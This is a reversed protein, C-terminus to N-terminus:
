RNVSELIHDRMIHVAKMFSNTSEEITRALELHVSLEKFDSSEKLITKQTRRLADDEERELSLVRDVPELFDQMEERTCGKQVYQAAHLARLHEQSAKVALEAMGVLEAHIGKSKLNAPALTTFFCAEELFDTADDAATILAVFFGAAETRKSLGRVKSVLEDAQSEWRKARKATRGIFSSNGGRQIGLLSDRVATAVEITLSAHETCIEMLGQHASRFYRLLEAKIEDQILLNSRHALQGATATKLVWQIYELTRERGLVQYLPEGYRLPARAALELAEYILKEGGLKLFGMHGVDNDAAWKLAAICDKKRLFNRFCKRARNWDILFVLRSGFYDLFATLEAGDRATFKGVSLHYMGSEFQAGGRKSLTDEWKVPHKEFLGQFFLLRAMHVDTYIISVTLDEINIVLVHADTTGIDNQLLLKRGTRTATTGLGPHEFKLPATRNLGTMFAKVLERDPDELLYTRAGDIVEKSLEGQLANLEKHLDMVLLHLSDGAARDASTLKMVLEESVIEEGQAPLGELLRGMRALQEEAGTGGRAQIPRAMEEMCASISSFVEGAFPMKYKGPGVKATGGVVNDLFTNDVGAAEREAKLDSVEREPHEARARATQLLTFYYKVRDNAVLAANV